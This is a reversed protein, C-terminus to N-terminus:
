ARFSKVNLYSSILAKKIVSIESARWTQSRFSEKLEWRISERLLKGGSPWERKSNSRGKVRSCSKGEQKRDVGKRDGRGPQEDELNLWGCHKKGRRKGERDKGKGRMAEWKMSKKGLDHWRHGQRDDTVQVTSNIGFDFDEARAKERLVLGGMWVDGSQRYPM